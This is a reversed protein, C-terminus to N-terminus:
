GIKDLFQTETLVPIGLERAKDLKSGASEGAVVFSTKKSVSGSAKGGLRTILEEIENRDLKELTGTVVVTQGALPLKASDAQPKAAKPDIGVKKLQRITDIGSESHFFDHVSDAIVEGIEDVECLQEKSADGIADLSGFTSALVYAVRNGVHRIGLGALLRDLGRDRSAAISDIVNQASKEGMRELEVLQEETLRFIDAFTKLLGADVLQDILAEGLREINMQNRACFWRLREKLQAPCAPNVCRIYPTDAEKRVKAGCSPCSTPPKVKKAGKPRKEPVVQLVQPIIEGAKEIVVTDGLHIDKAEIQEINHLTANSVTTGAVFVPELRAVPTLTGGKGVQWEVDRLVTQVQEAPYKFAIVWRPAKSTAGLRERQALSDIKVVMGDTQYALTGRVKAFAEIVRIVEDIDKAKREQEPTPIGLSKLRKLTEWYSDEPPPDVQGLGHAAFRLRRSATIKPDLQKLTGATFNRPNAFTEEGTAERERNIRQFESNDMFIEGRVELIRPFYTAGTGIKTLRLPISRITRVNASVDDGRRGDGRTAALALRGSEYRLSVAVGDIKPELVYGYKEGGLAKNVREDFARVESEDYTNDISMMRVAHEVTRFGDIPDGGIRQTPSADSALEPHAKELEVLEALLRDFERDSIQPKNLVHYSHNHRHLEDRLKEIKQKASDPM